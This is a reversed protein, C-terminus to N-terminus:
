SQWIWDAMICFDMKADYHNTDDIKDVPEFLSLGIKLIDQRCQSLFRDYYGKGYGIRFGDNDFCILPLLVLDIQEDLCKLAQVPELVGYRNEVLQTHTDFLYSELRHTPLHIKPIVLNIHPYNQRITEIILWTNIEHQKLIPLFIHLYNIAMLNFYEFFQTSIMQSQQQLSALSLTKRKALFYKRLEHKPM